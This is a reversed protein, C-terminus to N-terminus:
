AGVPEGVPQVTSVGHAQVVRRWTWGEIAPPDFSDDKTAAALVQVSTADLLAGFARRNEADFLDVQDIAVFDFGSADALALQLAIGVQLRESKSLLEAPRDNVLVLWPDVVIRLQYGFRALAGNIQEQFRAMARELAQVRAGKPGYVDCQREAEAFARAADKQREQAARYAEVAAVAARADTIVREGKTIRDRLAHLAEAQDAGGACQDREFALKMRTEQLLALDAGVSALDKAQRQLGALRAELKATDAARLRAKEVLQSQEDQEAELAAIQAKLAKLQGLFAKAPTRCEVTADLVCGRDPAHADLAEVTDRALKLRGDATVLSIRARDAAERDADDFAMTGLHEQLEDIADQLDVTAGDRAQATRLTARKTELTAANRDAQAIARDLEAKRGSESSTAAILAREEARLETLKAELVRVDPLAEEVPAAPTAAADLTRRRVRREERWYADRQDVQALTLREDGVDVRVNLVDLLLNKAEAHHLDLFAEGDLCAAIVAPSAGLRETLVGMAEGRSGAAGSVALTGSRATQTREVTFAPLDATAVTLKVKLQTVGDGDRILADAGKGGADTGRCAGTLALRVADIVSSKGAHNRGIVFTVRTPLELVAGAFCRFNTLEISELHM